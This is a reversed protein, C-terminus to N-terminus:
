KLNNINKWEILVNKYSFIVETNQTSISYMMIIEMFILKNLFNIYATKVWLISHYIFSM